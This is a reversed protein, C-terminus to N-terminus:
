LKLILILKNGNIVHVEYMAAFLLSETGICKVKLVTMGARVRPRGEPKVLTMQAVPNKYQWRKVVQASQKTNLVEEM